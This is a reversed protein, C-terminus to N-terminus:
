RHAVAREPLNYRLEAGDTPRYSSRSLHVAWRLRRNTATARIALANDARLHQLVRFRDVQRGRLGILVHIPGLNRIFRSTQRISPEIRARHHRSSREPASCPTRPRARDAMLM